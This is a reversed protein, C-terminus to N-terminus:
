CWCSLLSVIRAGSSDIKYRRHVRGLTGNYRTFIVKFSIQQYLLKSLVNYVCILKIYYFPLVCLLSFPSHKLLWMAIFPETSTYPRRYSMFAPNPLVHEKAIWTSDWRTTWSWPWQRYMLRVQNFAMMPILSTVDYVATHREMACGRMTTMRM